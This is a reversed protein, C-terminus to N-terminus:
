SIDSRVSYPNTNKGSVSELHDSQPDRVPRHLLSAGARFAHLQSKCASTGVADAAYNVLAGATSPPLLIGAMKQGAWVHRLRRALFVSRTLVAGFRVKPNQADAMAFRFPHWRATRVLERHLTSMRKKRDQWATALLGQVTQRWKLRSPPHRCRLAM